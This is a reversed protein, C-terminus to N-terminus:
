ACNCIYWAARSDVDIVKIVGFYEELESKINQIFNFYDGGELREIINTFASRNGNYDYIIVLQKSLRSMQAYMLKREQEKLGHAVYSAISIDFSRDAFPLKQLANARVFDIEKNEPKKMAINLMRQSPDIGTVSLGRQHLVSCLAGTGCGIDIISKYASLDLEKQIGAVVTNYYKKQYEYFLGYVPAIIEFLELCM